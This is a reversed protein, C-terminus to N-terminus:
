HLHAPRRRFGLNVIRRLLKGYSVGNEEASKAFDENAALEPNPNAELVYISGDPALRLDMRAYGSLGLIRYARKCVQMIREPCGDPLGEARRSVVGWKKQYALDWKVKATAILPAGEPKNTLLLEWVPFVDLRRNGMVAVYLERGEIFQEAIADTGVHGHIFAVREQLGREDRVLSAESIGLSADEVLSKVFLPFSLRAPRRVRRGIPFVAFDPVRIRHYSLLKKSLAKDRSLLLGRPNCGTYPLRMLELYGVVNQDYVAVGNFEELLNFAVHPRWEEIAQRIVGLDSYVGLPRVEHGVDELTAVVDYETRWPANERDEHEEADDPPELGERILALVRLKRM